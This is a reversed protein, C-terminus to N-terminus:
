SPRRSIVTARARLFAFVAAAAVLHKLTHGSVIETSHFIPGDQVELVKAIVYLFFGLLFNRNSFTRGPVFLCLGLGLVLGGYQLVYYPKLDGLGFKWLTLTIAGVLACMAAGGLGVPFSLKDSIIWGIIAGFAFSMPLRDWYLRDLTPEWHFYASGCATLILAVSLFAKFICDRSEREFKVYQYLGWLGVVLFSLNSLVDLAHPIGWLTRQDAFHMYRASDQAPIRDWFILVGIGFVLLAIGTAISAQRGQKVM